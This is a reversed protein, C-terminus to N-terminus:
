FISMSATTWPFVVTRTSLIMLLFDVASGLFVAVSIARSNFYSFWTITLCRATKFRRFSTPRIPRTATLFVKMLLFVWFARNSKVLYYRSYVESFQFLTAKESSDFNMDFFMDDAMAGLCISSQNMRFLSERGIKWLESEINSLPWGYIVDCTLPPPPRRVFHSITHCPPLSGLNQSM